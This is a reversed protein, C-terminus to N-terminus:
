CLKRRVFMANLQLIVQGSGCVVSYAASLVSTTVYYHLNVHIHDSLAWNAHVQGASGSKFGSGPLRPIDSGFWPQTVWNKDQLAVVHGVDSVAKRSTGCLDQITIAGPNIDANM